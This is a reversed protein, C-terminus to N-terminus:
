TGDTEVERRDAADPAENLVFELLREEDWGKWNWARPEGPDPRENPTRDSDPM